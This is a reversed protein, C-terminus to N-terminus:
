ARDGFVEGLNRNRLNVNKSILNEVKKRIEKIKEQADKRVLIEIAALEEEYAKTAFVKIGTEFADNLIAVLSEDKDDELYEAIMRSIDVEWRERFLSTFIDLRFEGRDMMENLVLLFNIHKDLFNFIYEAQDPSFDGKKLQEVLFNHTEWPSLFLRLEWVALHKQLRHEEEYIYFRSFIHLILKQIKRSSARRFQYNYTIEYWKKTLLKKYEWEETIKNHNKLKIYFEKKHKDVCQKRKIDEVKFCGVDEDVNVGVYLSEGLMAIPFFIEKDFRIKISYNKLDIFQLMTCVTQNIMDGPVCICPLNGREYTCVFGSEIEIHYKKEILLCFYDIWEKM